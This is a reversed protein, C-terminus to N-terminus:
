AMFDIANGDFRGLNPLVEALDNQSLGFWRLLPAIYQEVALGPIIRGGGVDDASGLVLSPMQGYFQGGKVAGGMVMQHGGWGHDTGDGNSTLTRGFESLTFTTVQDSVGLAQLHQYFASLGQSLQALLLPHSTQQSDHTDWGGIGIFFVQRPQELAQQVGILDAVLELQKGLINNSPYTVAVTQKQQLATNLLANVQEATLRVDLLARALPHVPQSVMRQWAAHRKAGFHHGPYFGEFRNTGDGDMVFGRTLSGAQMLSGSNVSLNLPVSASDALLDAMRGAWGHVAPRQNTLSQWQAQQDNHSFLQRPALQRDAQLEAKSVPQRLNGVNNIMALEQRAFLDALAQMVHPMAYDPRLALAQLADPAFAMNQRTNRYEQYADVGTPVLMNFSDNGGYLFVCVLAKYDTFRRSSQNLLANALALNGGAQSFVCGGALAQLSHRLFRRRANDLSTM